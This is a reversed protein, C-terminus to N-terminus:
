GNEAEKKLIEEVQPHRKKDKVWEKFKKRYWMFEWLFWYTRFQRRAKKEILRGAFALVLLISSSAIMWFCVAGLWYYVTDM